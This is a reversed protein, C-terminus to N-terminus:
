APPAPPPPRGSHSRSPRRPSRSPVPPRHQMGFWALLAATRATKVCIGRATRTRATLRRAPRSSQSGTRSIRASSERRSRCARCSPSNCTGCRLSSSVQLQHQPWQAQSLRKRSHHRCPAAWALHIWTSLLVQWSPCPSRDNPPAGQRRALHRYHDLCLGRLCSSSPPCESTM